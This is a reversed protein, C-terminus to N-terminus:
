WVRIPNMHGDVQADDTTEYNHATLWWILGGVLLVFLISLLVLIRNRKKGPDEPTQNAKADRAEQEALDLEVITTM